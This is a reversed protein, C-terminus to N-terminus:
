RFQQPEREFVHLAGAELRTAQQMRYMAIDLVRIAQHEEFVPDVEVCQSDVKTHRLNTRERLGQSAEGAFRRGQLDVLGVADLQLYFPTRLVGM